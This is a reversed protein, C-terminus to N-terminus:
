TTSTRPGDGGTPTVKWYVDYREHVIDNIPVLAQTGSDGAAEFTLPQNGARIWSAPDDVKGKAGPLEPNPRPGSGRERHEFPGTDGYWRDRPAEEHKAALVLPGYM